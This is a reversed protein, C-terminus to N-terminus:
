PMEGRERCEPCRECIVGEVPERILTPSAAGCCDCRGCASLDVQRRMRRAEAAVSPPPPLRRTGDM